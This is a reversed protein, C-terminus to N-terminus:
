GRIGFMQLVTNAVSSTEDQAKKTTAWRPDERLKLQFDWLNTPVPNGNDDFGGLAQRVYPDNLSISEPDLEFTQAMLNVYPSALDRASVGARIKESFVPWMSAAQEQIDRQWDNETTLGSAVSRAASTYWGDSYSLGNATAQQRLAGAIDGSSGRLSMGGGGPTDQMGIDESLAQQLLAQGNARKGWGEYIFKQELAKMREPSVKSGVATAAEKVALRADETLLKWDAGEGQKSLQYSTWAERAYKNNTKYWNSERVALQFKKKGTAGEWGESVAREWIDRIEPDSKILPAVFAYDEDLQEMTLPDPDPVGDMNKDTYGYKKALAANQARKEASAASKKNTVAM